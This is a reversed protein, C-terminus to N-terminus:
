KQESSSDLEPHIKIETQPLLNKKKRMLFPFLDINSSSKWTTPTLLRFLEIFILHTLWKSQQKFITKNLIVVTNLLTRWCIRQIYTCVQTPYYDTLAELLSRVWCELWTEINFGNKWDIKRTLCLHVAKRLLQPRCRLPELFGSRLLFVVFFNATPRM